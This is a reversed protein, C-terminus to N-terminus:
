IFPGGRSRADWIAPRSLTLLHQGRLFANEQGELVSVAFRLRRIPSPTQLPECGDHCRPVPPYRRGVFRGWCGMELGMAAVVGGSEGISQM